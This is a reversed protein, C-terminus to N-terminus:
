IASLIRIPLYTYSRSIDVQFQLEGKDRFGCRNGTSLPRYPRSPFHHGFTHHLSMLPSLQEMDAGLSSRLWPLDIFQLTLATANSHLHQDPTFYWIYPASSFIIHALCASPPRCPTYVMSPQSVYWQEM